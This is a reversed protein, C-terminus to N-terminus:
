LGGVKGHVLLVYKRLDRRYLKVEKASACLKSMMAVAEMDDKAKFWMQVGVGDSKCVLVYSKRGM